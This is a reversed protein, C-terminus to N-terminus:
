SDVPSARFLEYLSRGSGCLDAGLQSLHDTPSLKLKPWSGETQQAEGAQNNRLPDWDTGPSPRTNVTCFEFEGEAQGANHLVM